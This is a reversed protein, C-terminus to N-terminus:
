QFPTSQRSLLTDHLAASRTAKIFKHHWLSFNPYARSILALLGSVATWLEWRKERPMVHDLVKM